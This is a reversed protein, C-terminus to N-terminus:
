DELNLFVEVPEDEWKLYDYDNKNLGFSKLYDDCGLFIVGETWRSIFEDDLRIPKGFYLCLDGNKDRVLYFHVKNIPKSDSKVVTGYFHVSRDKFNNFYLRNSASKRTLPSSNTVKCGFDVVAYTGLCIRKRGILM